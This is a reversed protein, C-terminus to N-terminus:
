ELLFPKWDSPQEEQRLVTLNQERLGDGMGVQPDTNLVAHILALNM